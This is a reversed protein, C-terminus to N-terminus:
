HFRCSTGKDEDNIALWKSHSIAPYPLFRVTTVGGTYARMRMVLPAAVSQVLQRIYISHM